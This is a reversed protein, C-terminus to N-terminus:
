LDRITRHCLVLFVMEVNGVKVRHLGVTHSFEFQKAKPCSATELGVSCSWVQKLALALMDLVQVM